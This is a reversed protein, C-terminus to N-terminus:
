ELSLKRYQTVLHNNLNFSLNNKKAMCQTYVGMSYNLCYIIVNWPLIEKGTLNQKITTSFCTTTILHLVKASQTSIMHSMKESDM